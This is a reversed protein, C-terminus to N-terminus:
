PNLYQHNHSLKRIKEWKLNLIINALKRLLTQGRGLDTNNKTIRMPNSLHLIDSAALDQPNELGMTIKKEM